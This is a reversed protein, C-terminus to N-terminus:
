HVFCMIPICKGFGAMVGGIPEPMLLVYDLQISGTCPESGHLTICAILFESFPAIRFPLM